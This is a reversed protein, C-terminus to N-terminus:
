EMRRLRGTARRIAESEHPAYRGSQLIREIGKGLRRRARSHQQYLVNRSQETMQVGRRALLDDTTISGSALEGLEKVSIVFAERADSRFTSAIEPILRDEIEAAAWATLREEEGDIM